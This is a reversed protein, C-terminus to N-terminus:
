RGLDTYGSSGFSESLCEIWTLVRRLQISNSAKVRATGNYLINKRHGTGEKKIYSKGFQSLPLGTMESWFQKMEAENQGSHLHLQVRFKKLPIGLSGNAWKLFLNVLGPDSNSIGVANGTKHGEAWYTVLGALFFPDSVLTPYQDRAEQRIVANRRRYTEKRAIAAKDQAAASRWGREKIAEIQEPPLDLDRCWHSLTGKPVPIVDRIEAYTLGLVRLQQGMERQEWRKLDNWRAAKEFFEDPIDIDMGRYYASTVVDFVPHGVPSSGAVDQVVVLHEVLQAVAVM